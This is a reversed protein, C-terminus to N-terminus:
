GFSVTYKMYGTTLLTSGTNIVCVRYTGAPIGTYSYAVNSKNGGSITKTYVTTTRVNWFGLKINYHEPAWVLTEVNIYSTDGQDIVIDNSGVMVVGPAADYFELRNGGYPSIPESSQAPIVKENPITSIFM